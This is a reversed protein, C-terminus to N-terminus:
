LHARSCRRSCGSRLPMMVVEGFCFSSNSSGAFTALEIETGMSQTNM